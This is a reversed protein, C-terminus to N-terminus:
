LGANRYSVRAMAAWDEEGLGQAIAAVFRDHVLSALPLPVAAAEAAAMVLRNDKLGLPLKFGPPQLKDDALMKGYTRYVPAGFLTETMIELFEHPEIGSKRTLAFAEALSEIVTTIMFNGTLKVLNANSAKEGVIFTRQGMASFLPQCRDLVASQGAAVIFLRAAAAAEPRGFVPAAVYTQKKQRHAEDLRASLAVSITSMSIHLADPRLTHLVQGKGFIVDELAADDALMTIVVDAAAAAEAPSAAVAAGEGRLAEARSQTRNYAILSQGSKLLNRAMNSGMNGLGLFAVKM